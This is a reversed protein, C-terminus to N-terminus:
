HKMVCLQSNRPTNISDNRPFSLDHILRFKGPEHKAVLGLPSALFNAMPPDDFPGAVRGLGVENHFKLTVIEHSQLASKHNQSFRLHQPGDYRLPFGHSFGDLLFSAAQENYGYLYHSLASTNIPPPWWPTTWITQHGQVHLPHWLSRNPPHRLM